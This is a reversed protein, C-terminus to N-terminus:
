LGDEVRATIVSRNHAKDTLVFRVVSGPARCTEPVSVTALWDKRDNTLLQAREGWPLLATVRATDPGAHVELRLRGGVLMAHATGHPPTLDVKYTTRVIKRAGDSTVVIVSVTYEGEPTGAPIDFRAEWRGNAPNHELAKVEGDPMLAVVKIANAPAAISILPDGMRAHLQEELKTAKEQRKKIKALLKTDKSNKLSELEADLNAIECKVELRRARFQAYERGHTITNLAILRQNLRRIKATDPHPKTREKWLKNRVEEAQWILYPREAEKIYKATSVGTARHLRSLELRIQRASRSEPTPYHNRSALEESLDRIRWEAWNRLSDKPNEGVAWSARRQRQSIAQWARGSNRGAVILDVMNWTLDNQIEGIRDRIRDEAKYDLNKCIANLRSRFAKAQRTAGKGDVIMHALQEAIKNADAEAKERRYLEMEAKPVALWSTFASPICFRLSLAMVKRRVAAGRGLQEIRRAAWLKTAVNNPEAGASFTVKQTLGSLWVVADGSGKYRGFVFLTQGAESSGADDMVVDYTKVGEISLKPEPVDYTPTIAIAFFGDPGGSRASYISTILPAPKRALRVVLDKQPRYNEGSFQITHGQAGSTVALGFNNTVREISADPLVRVKVDIHELPNQKPKDVLPLTFVATPGNAHLTQAYHLEIKLDAGPMVPFVRARFTNKGILEVLAPDRQRTTITKYIEAARKKEVVRAVVKEEGAWYAFYTPTAGEPLTWIFDAEIRDYSPNQFTLTLKTTAFQGTVVSDAALSRPILPSANEGVPKLLVGASVPAFAALLWVLSSAALSRTSLRNM